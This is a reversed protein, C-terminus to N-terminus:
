VIVTKFVTLSGHVDVPFSSDFKLEIPIVNRFANPLVIYIAYKLLQKIDFSCKDFPKMIELLNSAYIIDINHICSNIKEIGENFQNLSVPNNKHAYYDEFLSSAAQLNKNVVNIVNSQSKTYDQHKCKYIINILVSNSHKWSIKSMWVSSATYESNLQNDNKILIPYWSNIVDGNQVKHFSNEFKLIQDPQIIKNVSIPMNGKRLPSFHKKAKNNMYQFNGNSNAVILLFPYSEIIKNLM